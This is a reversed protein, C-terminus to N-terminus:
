FARFILDLITKFFPSVIREFFFFGIIIPFILWYSKESLAIKLESFTLQFILVCGFLLFFLFLSSCFIVIPILFWSFIGFETFTNLVKGSLFICSSLLVCGLFSAYFKLNDKKLLNEVTLKKFECYPM